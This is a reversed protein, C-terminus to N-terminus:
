APERGRAARSRLRWGRESAPRARHPPAHPEEGNQARESVCLQLVVKRTHCLVLILDVRSRWTSRVIHASRLQAHRGHTAPAFRTSNTRRTGTVRGHLFSTHAHTFGPQHIWASHIWAPPYWASTCARVLQAATEYFAFYIAYECRFEACVAQPPTFVPANRPQHALALCNATVRCRHHLTLEVDLRCTSPSGDCADIPALKTADRVRRLVSQRTHRSAM